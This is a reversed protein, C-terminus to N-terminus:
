LLSLSMITLCFESCLIKSTVGSMNNSITFPNLSSLSLWNSCKVYLKSVSIELISGLSLTLLIYCYKGTISSVDIIACCFKARQFSSFGKIYSILFKDSSYFEFSELRILLNISNKEIIKSDKLSKLSSPLESLTKSALSTRWFILFIHLEIPSECAM